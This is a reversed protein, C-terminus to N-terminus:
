GPRQSYLSLSYMHPSVKHARLIDFHGGGRSVDGKEWGPAYDVEIFYRQGQRELAKGVSRLETSTAAM